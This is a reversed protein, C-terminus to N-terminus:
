QISHDRGCMLDFAVRWHSQHEFRHEIVERPLHPESRNRRSLTSQPDRLFGNLIRVKHCIRSNFVIKTTHRLRITNLAREGALAAASEERSSLLPAASKQQRQDVFCEVQLFPNHNCFSYSAVANPEKLMASNQRQEQQDRTEPAQTVKLIKTATM